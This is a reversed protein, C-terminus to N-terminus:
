KQEMLLKITWAMLKVDDLNHASYFARRHRQHLDDHCSKCMPITAFDSHPGRYAELHHAEQARTRRGYCNLCVVCPLTHIVGLYDKPSM